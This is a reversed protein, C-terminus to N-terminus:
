HVGLRVPHTRFIAVVRGVLDDDWSSNVPGRETAVKTAEFLSLAEKKTSLTLKDTEIANVKVVPTLPLKTLSDVPYMAVRAVRLFVFIDCLWWFEPILFSVLHKTWELLFKGPAVSTGKHRQRGEEYVQLFLVGARPRRNPFGSTSNPIRVVSVSNELLPDISHHEEQQQGQGVESM